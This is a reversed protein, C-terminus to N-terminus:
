NGESHMDGLTDSVSIAESYSDILEDHKMSGLEICGKVDVVVARGILGGEDESFKVVEKLREDKLQIMAHPEEPTADMNNIKEPLAMPYSDHLLRRGKIIKADNSCEHRARKKHCIQSPFGKNGLIRRKDQM